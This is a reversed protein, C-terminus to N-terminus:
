KAFSSSWPCEKNEKWQPAEEAYVEKKWIPVSRKVDDICWETAQIAEKRHPSSIAIIISAEKVPVSGVRHYIAIGEVTPWHQRIEECIATMRKIAMAEYVEYELNVVKKGEFNDRTTGIFLSIAGCSKSSVLNSILEVSLREETVELYNM